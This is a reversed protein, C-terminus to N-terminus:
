TQKRINASKATADTTAEAHKAAAWATTIELFEKLMVENLAADGYFGRVHAVQRATYSDILIFQQLTLCSQDLCRRMFQHLEDAFRGRIAEFEKPSGMTSGRLTVQKWFLKFLNIHKAPGATAGYQIWHGGPAIVDMLTHHDQGGAGDLIIQPPGSQDQLNQAWTPTDYLIGGKAGQSTARELKEQSSSTVWVCAGLSIAWQLAWQAVGGGIGLISVTDGKQLKAQTVLARWATLGALPLAAAQEFSWQSPKPYLGPEPVLVHTSLTGDRPMGLVQFDDSQVKPTEGWSLGPYLMVERNLWHTQVGEGIECVVGAGDSGLTVPLHIDPYLGQTIWYDRRNLAASQLRVLVEGRPIRPRERTEIELADGIAKLVASKM